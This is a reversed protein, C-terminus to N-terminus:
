ILHHHMEDTMPDKKAFLETKKKTRKEGFHNLRTKM